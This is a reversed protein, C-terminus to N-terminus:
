ADHLAFTGQYRWFGLDSQHPSKEVDRKLKQISPLIVATDSVSLHLFYATPNFPNALPINSAMWQWRHATYDTQIMRVICIYM